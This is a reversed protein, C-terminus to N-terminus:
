GEQKNVFSNSGSLETMQTLIRCDLMIDSNLVTNKGEIHLKNVQLLNLDFFILKYRGKQLVECSM